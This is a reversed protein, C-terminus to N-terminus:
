KKRALNKRNRKCTRHKSIELACHHKDLHVVALVTTVNDLTANRLGDHTTGPPHLIVASNEKDENAASQRRVYVPPPFSLCSELLRQSKPFCFWFLAFSTGLLILLCSKSRYFFYMSEHLRTRCKDKFEAEEDLEFQADGGGDDGTSRNMGRRRDM